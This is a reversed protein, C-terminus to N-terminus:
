PGPNPPTALGQVNTDAASYASGVTTALQQWVLIACIGIIAALLAHEVIDQGQEDRIFETLRWM